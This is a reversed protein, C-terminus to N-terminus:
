LWSLLWQRMSELWTTFDAYEGPSRGIIRDCAEIPLFETTGSVPGVYDRGISYM